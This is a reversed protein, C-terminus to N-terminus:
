ILDRQTIDGCKKCRLHYRTGKYTCMFGTQSHVEERLTEWEHSCSRFHGVILRYLLGLM